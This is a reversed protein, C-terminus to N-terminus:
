MGTAWPESYRGIILLGFCIAVVCLLVSLLVALLPELGSFRRVVGPLTFGALSSFYSAASAFVGALGWGYALGWANFGNKYGVPTVSYGAVPVVVLVAVAILVAHLLFRKEPTNM